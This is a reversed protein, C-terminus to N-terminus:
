DLCKGFLGSNESEEDVLKEPAQNKGSDQLQYSRQMEMVLSDLNRDDV